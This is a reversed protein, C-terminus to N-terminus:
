SDAIGYVRIHSYRLNDQNANMKFGTMATTSNVRCSYTHTQQYGNWDTANGMGFM